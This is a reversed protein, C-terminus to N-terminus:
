LEPASSRADRRFVRTEVPGDDVQWARHMLTTDFPMTFNGESDVAILGIEEIGGTVRACADAVGLRAHRMLASVEHAGCTRVMAEGNGTASVAATSDAFVGAGVIPSDGVRGPRQGRRGGTSTAAALFGDRDLVVAGVTGIPTDGPDEHARGAESRRLRELQRETVFWGADMRELERQEALAEAGAGVLMVDDTAEMVARALAVPHRVTTVAAVAGAAGTRGCMIAADMEVTADSTLVSGRGANFMPADELRSVAAQVAGLAGAGATLAAAAARVAEELGRHYDEEHAVTGGSPNGCGGHVVIVTV